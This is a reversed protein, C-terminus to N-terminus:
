FRELLAVDPASAAVLNCGRIASGEAIDRARAALGSSLLHPELDRRAEVRQGHEDEISLAHQEPLIDYERM